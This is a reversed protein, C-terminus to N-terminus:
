KQSLEIIQGPTTESVLGETIEFHHESEFFIKSKTPIFPALVFGPKCDEISLEDINKKKQSLILNIKTQNPLRWIAISYGQELGYGIVGKIIEKTEKKQTTITKVPAIM